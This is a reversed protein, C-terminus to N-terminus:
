KQSLSPHFHYTRRRLNYIACALVLEIRLPSRCAVGLTPWALTMALDLPKMDVVHFSSGIAADANNQKLLTPHELLDMNCGRPIPVVHAASFIAMAHSTRTFITRSLLSHTTKRPGAYRRLGFSDGLLVGKRMLSNRKNGRKL